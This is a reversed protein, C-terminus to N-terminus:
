EALEVTLRMGSRMGANSALTRIAMITKGNKGIVKGMDEKDCHIRVVNFGDEQTEIQTRIADPKDVLVRVVYDVFHEIDGLIKSDPSSGASSKAQTKAPTEPGPDKMGFLGM